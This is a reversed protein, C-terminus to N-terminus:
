GTRQDGGGKAAGRLTPSLTLPLIPFACAVGRCPISCYPQTSYAIHISRVFLRRFLL